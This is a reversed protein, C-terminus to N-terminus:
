PAAIKIIAKNSTAGHLSLSVRLDVPAAVNGPLVVIVQTLWNFGPVKMVAEVTLTYNIGNGDVAQAKVAYADENPQLELNWAFLSVRTRGDPSSNLPNTLRFPGRVQTVSDLAVALETNEEMLLVPGSSVITGIFNHTQNASLNEFTKGAPSFSWGPKSPTVTYNGDAPVTFSYSGSTDTTLSGTQSGSLTITVGDLGSNNGTVQGSIKYTQLTGTFNVTQNRDLNNFLVGPSTFRYGAKAVRITYNGGSPL